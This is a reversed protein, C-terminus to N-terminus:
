SQSSLADRRERAVKIVPASQHAIAAVQGCVECAAQMVNEVVTGDDLTFTGYNFVAYTLKQCSECAVKTTDGPKVVHM